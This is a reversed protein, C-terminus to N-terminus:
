ENEVKKGGSKLYLFEIMGEMKDVKEKLHSLDNKIIAQDVEIKMKVKEIIIDVDKKIDKDRNSIDVKIRDIESQLKSPWFVPKALFGLLVCVSIIIGLIKGFNTVFNIRDNELRQPKAM